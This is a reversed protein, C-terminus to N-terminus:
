PYRLRFYVHPQNSNITATYNTGSATGPIDQWDSPVALSISNSQVIWGKHDAPWSLSLTHNSSLATLYPSNTAIYTAVQLSGSGTLYPSSTTSNYVGTPQSVGNLVLGAITNTTSFDMQLIAGSAVTVTSGAALTPQAIELTASNVTTNGTYANTGALIENGSGEVLLSINGAIVGSYTVGSSLNLTLTSAGLGSNTVLESNAPSVGDSLGNLTQSFGNMDFVGPGSPGVALMAATCLGNNAGLSATGTAYFMTYNGGGSFRVLGARTSILGSITNTIPGTVNLYGSTAPGVFCGGSTASSDFELPGSITTVTGNTNDNVMLLGNGAGPNITTADVFNAFTIGSALVLRGGVIVNVAGSGLSSGNNIAVTPGEIVTGNPYTDPVAMTLTGSGLATLQGAGSITNSMVLTAGSDVGISSATPMAVLGTYVTVGGGGKRLAGNGDGVGNLTLPTAVNVNATLYLQAGSAVTAGPTNGFGTPSNLYVIGQNLQTAGTYDSSGNIAVAGSGDFSLIGPGHITNFVVLATDSRNFSLRAKNTVQGSGLSGNADENGIQLEGSTITVAGSLNNTLDIDLIGSGTKTLSSPGALSGVGGGSMFMYGDATNVSVSYPIITQELDVSGGGSRDDFLVGNTQAFALIGGGALDNTWDPSSTDWTNNAGGDGTGLWSLTPPSFVTLIATASNTVYTTAGITNTAYCFISDNNDGLTTVFSFSANTAGPVPTGNKVWQYTIPLYGTAAASFSATWGVPVSAGVPQVVFSAPGSALVIGPGQVQSQAISLPSLAGNYIRLESFNATLNPDGNNLSAGIYSYVNNINALGVTDAASAELVGNTYISMVQNPADFVCAVHVSQDDLNGAAANTEAFGFDAPSIFMEHGVANHPSFGLFAHALLVGSNITGFNFAYVNDPNTGFAAWFEVTVATQNAGNIIGSPLQLYTGSTGDLVLQGSAEYADGVNTGNAGAISDLTTVTAGNTFNTQFSYRHNLFNAAGVVLQAVTSTATNGTTNTVICEYFGANVAAVNSITYTASVAGAIKNSNILWQYGLTSGTTTAGVVFSVPQNYDVNQSIPNQTITVLPSYFQMQNAARCVSSIRVEDVAGLFTETGTSRGRNAIVFPGVNTGYAAGIALPGTALVHAAGLSPDLKTWYVTGNTGDYTFAVHYWTGAVFGNEPDQALTPINGQLAQSTLTGGGVYQFALTGSSIRFFLGRVTDHSDTSFIDQNGSTSTPCILAEMTFPTQGGVGIGLNTMMMYDATTTATGPDGAFSGDGNFDYGLLYGSTQNSACNNFSIAAPSTTSYSGFGLMTTVAPLPNGTASFNVTIFKGGLSGANTTVSGGAPEDMHLLFLTNADATYPGALAGHAFQPVLIAPLLCLGLQLNKM